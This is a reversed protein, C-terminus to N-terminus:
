KQTVAGGAAQLDQVTWPTARITVAYNLDFQDGAAHHIPKPELVAACALRYTANNVLYWPSEPGGEPAEPILAVGGVAKEGDLFNLAVAAANPRSRDSVFNTVPGATSLMSITYPPGPLRLTIGGYGGNSQGHPEGLLPTRDLVLSRDGVVFHANWHIQYSGDPQPATVVIERSETMDVHRSPAVYRLQLRITAAGNPTTQISPPDWLTRGQALGTNTDEEWYNIHDASDPPYIYKWSFWLGYHWPHDDPKFSTFSPGGAATLPHFFPKGRKPDFNFQWVINTGNRLALSTNDRVWNTQASPQTSCASLLLLSAFVFLWASKM